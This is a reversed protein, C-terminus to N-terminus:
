KIKRKKICADLLGMFLPAPNELRSTLEPHSQTAVFYPHIKPELEIFQVIGENKSVGAIHM